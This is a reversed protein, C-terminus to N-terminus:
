DCFKLLLFFFFNFFVVCNYKFMKLDSNWLYLYLNTINTIQKLNFATIFMLEENVRIHAFKM